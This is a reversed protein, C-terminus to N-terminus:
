TMEIQCVKKIDVMSRLGWGSKDTKVVVSEPYLRRQFRQNQCKEGAQCVSPHCEYMLMRNMCDTDSGCPAESGTKCECHPIESIDAKYIQVSGIPYNTQFM